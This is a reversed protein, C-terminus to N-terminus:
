DLNRTPTNAVRVAQAIGAPLLAAGAGMLAAVTTDSVALLADAGAGGLLLLVGAFLQALGMVNDRM